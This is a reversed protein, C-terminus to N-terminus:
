IWAHMVSWRQISYTIFLLVHVYRHYIPLLYIRVMSSLEVKGFIPTLCLSFIMSCPMHLLGKIPTCMLHNRQAAKTNRKSPLKVIHCLPIPFTRSAWPCFSISDSNVPTFHFDRAHRNGLQTLAGASRQACVRSLVIGKLRMKWSQLPKRNTWCLQFCRLRCDNYFPLIITTRTLWPKQNQDNFWDWASRLSGM